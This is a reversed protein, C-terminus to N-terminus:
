LVLGLRELQRKHEECSIAVYIRTTEVSSHGLIDALRVIDKCAAYFVTAFLHRFSHPYVKSEEVGAQRCLRKMEHWIQRRSLSKGSATVFIEGTIGYRRAYNTLKRCLKEPLIVIRIKGKLFICVSGRKAGETTIYKLEGIRIGTAGLTEMLLALRTQGSKRAQSLLRSYEERSLQRNEQRFLQKQIKLYKIKIELGLFRFFGNLAALKSNITKPCYGKERLHNKWAAARKETVRRGGLYAAFACVDRRYNAITGEAKEAFALARCYM